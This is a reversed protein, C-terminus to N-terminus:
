LSLVSCISFWFQLLQVLRYPTDLALLLDEVVPESCMVLQPSGAHEGAVSIELQYVLPGETDGGWHCPPEFTLAVSVNEGDSDMSTLRPAHPPAGPPSM